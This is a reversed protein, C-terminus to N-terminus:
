QYSDNSCEHMVVLSLYPNLFEPLCEHLGLQFLKNSNNILRVGLSAIINYYRLLEISIYPELFRLSNLRKTQVFFLLFTNSVLEIWKSQLISTKDISSI